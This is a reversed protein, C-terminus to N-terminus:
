RRRRVRRWRLGVAALGVGMLVLSGPEPVVAAVDGPRVAWALVDDGSKMRGGTSQLGRSIELAWAYDADYETGSWYWSEWLEVTVLDVATTSPNDPTQSSAGFWGLQPTLCPTASPDDPSCYGPSALNHYRM